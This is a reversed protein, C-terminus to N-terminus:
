ALEELEHKQPMGDTWYFVAKNGMGVADNKTLVPTKEGHQLAHLATKQCVAKLHAIVSLRANRGRYGTAGAWADAVVDLTVTGGKALNWALCAAQRQAVTLSASGTLTLFFDETPM